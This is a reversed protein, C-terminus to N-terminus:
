IGAVRRRRWLACGLAAAGAVTAWTSPEPVAALATAEITFLHGSVPTEWTDGFDTTRYGPGRTWGDLQTQTPDATALWSLSDTESFVKRSSAVLWYTTNAELIADGDPSFTPGVDAYLNFLDDEPRQTETSHSWIEVMFEWDGSGPSSLTLETSEFLYGAANDGTTFQYGVWSNWHIVTSSDQSLGLNSLYIEWARASATLTCGLLLLRLLKM